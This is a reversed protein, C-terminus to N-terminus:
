LVESAKVTGDAESQPLVEEAVEAAVLGSQLEQLVSAVQQCRGRCRHLRVWDQLRELLVTCRQVLDQALDAIAVQQVLLVVTIAAATSLQPLMPGAEQEKVALGQEVSHESQQQVDDLAVSADPVGCLHFFDEVAKVAKPVDTVGVNQGDEQYSM